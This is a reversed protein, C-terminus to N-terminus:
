NAGGSSNQKILNKLMEFNDTSDDPPADKIPRDLNALTESHKRSRCSKCVSTTERKMRTGGLTRYEEVDNKGALVMKVGFYADTNPYEKGCRSCCKTGRTRPDMTSPRQKYTM